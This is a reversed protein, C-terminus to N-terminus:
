KVKACDPCFSLEGVAPPKNSFFLPAHGCELTIDFMNEIIPIPRYFSVIRRQYRPDQAIPEDSRYTDPWNTESM